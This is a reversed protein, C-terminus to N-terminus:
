TKFAAKAKAMSGLLVKLQVRYAEFDFAKKIAYTMGAAALGVGAAGYKFAKGIGRGVGRAFTGLKRLSGMADRVARGMKNNGLIEIVLSKKRAM